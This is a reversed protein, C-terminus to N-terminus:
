KILILHSRLSPPVDDIAVIKLQPKEIDSSSNAFTENIAKTDLRYMAGTLPDVILWGIVGGFVLNGALYWASLKCSVRVIKDKFGPLSLKVSYSQKKFYGAGAQLFTAAPTTGRFVEINKKNTIVVTAGTPTSNIKLPWSRKTVITACGVAFVIICYLMISPFIIKKM